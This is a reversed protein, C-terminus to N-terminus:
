RQPSPAQLSLLWNALPWKPMGAAAAAKVQQQAEPPLSEWDISGLIADAAADSDPAPQTTSTTTSSPTTGQDLKEGAGTMGAVLGAELGPKPKPPPPPPIAEGRKAANEAAERAKLNRRATVEPPEDPIQDKQNARLLADRRRRERDIEDDLTTTAKPAREPQEYGHDMFYGHEPTGKKLGREAARAARDKMMADQRQQYEQEPTLYHRDANEQSRRQAEDAREKEAQLADDLTQQAEARRPDGPPLSNIFGRLGLVSSPLKRDTGRLYRLGGEISGAAIAAEGIEKDTAGPKAIVDQLHQQALAKQHEVRLRSASALDSLDMRPAKVPKGVVTSLIAGVDGVGGLVKGTFGGQKPSLWRLMPEPTAAAIQDEPIGSGALMARKQENELQQAEVSRPLALVNGLMGLGTVIDNIDVGRRPQSPFSMLDM